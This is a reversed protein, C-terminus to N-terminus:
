ILEHVADEPRITMYDDIVELDTPHFKCSTHRSFQSRIWVPTSEENTEVLYVISKKGICCTGQTRICHECNGRLFNTLMLTRAHIKVSNSEVIEKGFKDLAM